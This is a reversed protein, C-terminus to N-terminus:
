TEIINDKNPEIIQTLILKYIELYETINCGGTLIISGPRFILVSIVNPFKNRNNLKKRNILFDKYDDIRSSSIAKANIAPYKCNQFNIQIFNKSKHISFENLVECVALQDFFMGLKFDSNIMAIRTNTIKPKEIFCNKKLVRSFAKRIAYACSRITKCGAIQVKGNPFIKISVYGFDQYKGIIKMILSNYFYSNEDTQKSKKSKPNFKIKDFYCKSLETLDITSNFQSCVTITSLSFEKLILDSKLNKIEEVTKDFDKWSPHCICYPHKNEPDCISCSCPMEQITTEKYVISLEKLM